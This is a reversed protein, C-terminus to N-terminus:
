SHLQGIATGWDAAIVRTRPTIYETEFWFQGSPSINAMSYDGWRCGRGAGGPGPGVFAVYCTFGDEPRVGALYEHVATPPATASFTLYVASPYSTPGALSAVVVASSGDATMALDGYSLSDTAVAAYGQAAVSGGLGSPSWQPRVALGILGSRAAAGTGVQTDIITWVNGGAFKTPGAQDGGADIKNIPENPVGFLDRSRRSRLRGL